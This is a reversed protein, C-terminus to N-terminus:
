EDSAPSPLDARTIPQSCSLAASADVLYWERRNSVGIKAPARVCTPLSDAQVLVRRDGPSARMWVLGENWQDVVDARFGFETTPGVAQLLMQETWHILGITATPGANSRADEMLRRSSSEADLTPAIGVGYGTWLVLTTIAVASIM